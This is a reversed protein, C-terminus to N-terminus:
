DSWHSPHWAIRMLKNEVKEKQAKQKQFGDYWETIEDDDYFDDDDHWLKKQQQKVFWDPVYNLLWLDMRVVKNCMEQTKYQDLVCALTCPDLKIAENCMEQTKLHDPVYRLSWPGIRVAEDCVEQTKLHDPIEIVWRLISKHLAM